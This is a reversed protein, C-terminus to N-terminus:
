SVKKERIDLGVLISDVNSMDGIFRRLPSPLEKVLAPTAVIQEGQALTPEQYIDIVELDYRGKLHEECLKKLNAITAWALRSTTGAVYLRLQYYEQGRRNLAEEFEKTTSRPRKPRKGDKV